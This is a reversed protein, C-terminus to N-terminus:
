VGTPVALTHEPVGAGTAPRLAIAWGSPERTWEPCHRDDIAEGKVHSGQIGPRGNMELTVTRGPPVSSRQRRDTLTSLM